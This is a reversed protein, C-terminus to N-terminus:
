PAVGLFVKSYFGLQDRSEVFALSTMPRTARFHLWSALVLASALVACSSQTGRHNAMNVAPVMEASLPHSFPRTALREIPQALAAIGRDLRSFLSRTKVQLARATLDDLSPWRGDYSSTEVSNWFLRSLSVRLVGPENAAMYELADLLDDPGPRFFRKEWDEFCDLFSLRVGVRCVLLNEALADGNM